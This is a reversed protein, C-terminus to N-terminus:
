NAAPTTSSLRQLTEVVEAATWGNGRWIEVVRGDRGIVATALTHDILFGNREVHIAFASAFRSIEEASGTAFQWRAPDAEKASAYASLVQPTDFAPDLTVSLLRVGALAANREIERQVQQFRKVVLPCFEPVPCRTFIFTVATVHGTLDGTTFPRDDATTLAFPPVLDGKKLRSALQTGGPTMASGAAAARGMVTFSEARSAEETVRLVFRVRDGATLTPRVDPGVTFPMTMAPMYGSIEDHAVTVRGDVLPATVIGTVQFVRWDPTALNGPGTRALTVVVATAFSLTVFLRTATM